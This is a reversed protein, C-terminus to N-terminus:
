TTRTKTWASVPSRMRTSVDSRLNRAVNLARARRVMPAFVSGRVATGGEGSETLVRVGLLGRIGAALLLVAVVLGAVRSINVFLDQLLKGTFDM